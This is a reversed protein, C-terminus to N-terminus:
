TACVSYIARVAASMHVRRCRVSVGWATQVIETHKHEGQAVDAGEAAILSEDQDVRSNKPPDVQHQGHLATPTANERESM